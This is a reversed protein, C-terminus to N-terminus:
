LLEIKENEMNTESYITYGFRGNEKTMYLARDAKNLLKDYSKEMHSKHMAIGISAQVAGIDTPVKIKLYLTNLLNLAASKAETDKIEPIFFVFEDGGFRGLIANKSFLQRICGSVETLIMDGYNHGCTDNIQKFKDLDMIFYAGEGDQNIYETVKREFSTKNWLGTLGDLDRELAIEKERIFNKIKICNGVIGLGCGILWSFITDTLDLILIQGSKNKMTIYFTIAMAITSLLLTVIPREIFLLPIVALCLCNTVALNTNQSIVGVYLGYYYLLSIFAYMLLRTLIIKKRLNTMSLIVILLNLIVELLYFNRNREYNPFIFSLVLVIVYILLMLSSGIKLMSSNSSQINDTISINDVEKNNLKFLKKEIGTLKNLSYM